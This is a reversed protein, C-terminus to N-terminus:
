NENDAPVVVLEGPSLEEEDGVTELRSSLSILSSQQVIRWITVPYPFFSKIDSAGRMKLSTGLGYEFWSVPRFKRLTDTLGSLVDPELGQVDIKIADVNEVGLNAMYEDGNELRFVDVQQLPLDYQEVTSFTGLGFNNKDISFFPKDESVAGLGIKHLVINEKNNLAVNREFQAWLAANPEFSHVKEFHRSFTLAHTGINAGIDLIIRRRDRSVMSLFLDIQKEEYQGFLYTERDLYSSIDGEFWIGNNCVRLQAMRNPPAFIAALRRWGRFKQLRRLRRVLRYGIQPPHAENVPTSPMEM